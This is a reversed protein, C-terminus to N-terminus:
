IFDISFQTIPFRQYHNTKKRNIHFFFIQLQHFSSSFQYPNLGDLMEHSSKEKLFEITETLQNFKEQTELIRKENIMYGKVLHDKLTKTAWVRFQTARKSNIRYGVSIIMDLNYLNM